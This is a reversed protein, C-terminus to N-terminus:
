HDDPLLSPSDKEGVRTSALSSLVSLVAASGSLAALAGWDATLIDFQVLGVAAVVAQAATKVAREIASQWFYLTFM